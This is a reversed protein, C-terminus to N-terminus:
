PAIRSLALDAFTVYWRDRLYQGSLTRQASRAVTFAGTERVHFGNWQFHSFWPTWEPLMIEISWHGAADAVDITQRLLSLGADYDFPECLWDAVVLATTDSTRDDLPILVCAARPTGDDKRVTLYRHEGGDPFREGYWARTRVASLGWDASLHRHLSEIGDPIQEAPECPLGPFGEYLDRYHPRTLQLSNETRIVEMGLAHGPAGYRRGQRLHHLLPSGFVVVQDAPTGFLEAHRWGCRVILPPELDAYGAAAHELWVDLAGFTLARGDDTIMPVPRTGYAAHLNGSGEHEAVVLSPHVGEEPFWSSTPQGLTAEAQLRRLAPGDNATAARITWGPVEPVTPWLERRLESYPRTM